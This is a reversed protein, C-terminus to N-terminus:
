SSKFNDIYFQQIFRKTKKIFKYVRIVTLIYNPILNPILVM